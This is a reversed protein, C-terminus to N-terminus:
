GAGGPPSRQGHEQSGAAVGDSSSSVADGLKAWRRESDQALTKEPLVQSYPVATVALRNMKTDLSTVVGGWLSVLVKEYNLVESDDGYIGQWPQRGVWRHLARERHTDDAIGAIESSHTPVGRCNRKIGRALVTCSRSVMFGVQRVLKKKNCWDIRSHTEVTLDNSQNLISSCLRSCAVVQLSLM